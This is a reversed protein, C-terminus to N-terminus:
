NIEVSPRFWGFYKQSDCITMDVCLYKSVIYIAFDADLINKSLHKNGAIIRTSCCRQSSYCQLEGYTLYRSLKGFSFSFKGWSVKM